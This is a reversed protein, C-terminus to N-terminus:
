DKLNANIREKYEENKTYLRNIKLKYNSLIHIISTNDDVLYETRKKGTDYDPNKIIKISQDKDAFPYDPEGLGRYPSLETIPLNKEFPIYWCEEIKAAKVISEGVIPYLFESPFKDNLGILKQEEKAQKLTKRKLINDILEILYDDQINYDTDSNWDRKAHAVDNLTNFFYSDNYELFKKSSEIDKFLDILDFYSSVVKREMLGRYVEKAMWEFAVTAKHYIVTSYFFYRCMLYHEVAKRAKENVAFRNEEPVYVLNRIIQDMDFIGYIVGTEQSDRLLYDFRDADLESHIILGEPGPYTGAIIQAIYRIKDESFGGDKLINFIETQFIVISAMREHHAFDASANRNIHLECNLDHVKHGTLVINGSKEINISVESTKIKSKADEKVVSEVIHSLPYHGIDHLLAAMRILERKKSFIDNEEQLSIVIKDAIQLVGLSHNFRNHLAGPFVYDVFGLQRINRLRQFFPSDIIKSELETVKIFGHVNDYFERFPKIKDIAM